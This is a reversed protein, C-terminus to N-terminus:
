QESVVYVGAAHVVLTDSNPRPGVTGVVAVRNLPKLDGEGLVIPNGEADRLQITAANASITEPTECCYDWPKACNDGPNDACSPIAPDMIIFLGSSATIPESRGGIRGEITITDGEKADAKAQTVVLAGDPMADLKWNIQTVEATAEPAPAATAAPDQPSEECATLALMLTALCVTLGSLAKTQSM